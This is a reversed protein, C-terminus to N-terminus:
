RSYGNLIDARINEDEEEDEEDEMQKLREDQRLKTEIPIQTEDEETIIVQEDEEEIIESAAWMDPDAGGDASSAIILDETDQQKREEDVETLTDGEPIVTGTDIIEDVSIEDSAEARDEDVLSLTDDEYGTDVEMPILDVTDEEVDNDAETLEAYYDEKNDLINLETQIEEIYESNGYEQETELEEELSDVQNEIEDFKEYYPEVEILTNDEPIEGTDILNEVPIEEDATENEFEIREEDTDAWDPVETEIIEEVPITDITDEEQEIYEEEEYEEEEYEEDEEM